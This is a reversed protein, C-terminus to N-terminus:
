PCASMLLESLELQDSLELDCFSGSSGLSVPPPPCHTITPTFLRMSPWRGEDDGGMTRITRPLGPRTTRTTLTRTDLSSPCRASSSSFASSSPVLSTSLTAIYSSPPLLSPRIMAPYLVPTRLTHPKLGALWASHSSIASPMHTSSTARAAGSFCQRLVMVPSRTLLLGEVPASFSFASSRSAWLPLISEISKEGSPIRTTDPESSPVILSQSEPPPRGFRCM